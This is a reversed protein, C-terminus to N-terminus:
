LAFCRLVIIVTWISVAILCGLGTMGLDFLGCIWGGPLFCVYDYCLLEFDGFWFLLGGCFWILLTLWDLLSFGFWCEFYCELCCYVCVWWGGFILYVVLWFVFVTFGECWSCGGLLLLCWYILLLWCVLGVVLGVMFWFDLWFVTVRLILCWYDLKVLVFWWGIWVVLVCFLCVVSIFM